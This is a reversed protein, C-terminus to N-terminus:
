LTSQTHAGTAQGSAVQQWPGSGVRARDHTTTHIFRAMVEKGTGSEGQLLVTAETPAVLTARKIADAWGASHGVVLDHSTHGSVAVDRSRMSLVASM